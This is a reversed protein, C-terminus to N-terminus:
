RSLQTETDSFMTETEDEPVTDRDDPPAGWVDSPSIAMSSLSAVSNAATAAWSRRSVNEDNRGGIEGAEVSDESPGLGLTSSTEVGLVEWNSITVSGGRGCLVVV